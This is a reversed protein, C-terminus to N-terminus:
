KKRILYVLNSLYKTHDLIEIEADEDKLFNLLRDKTIFYLQKSEDQTKNFRFIKTSLFETLKTKKHKEEMEANADRIIILGGEELNEFCMKVTKEQLEEPMYHLVDAIVFVDAKQNLGETIDLYSFQINNLTETAKIAVEIKEKDYDYGILTRKESVLALFHALFGYGCGIDIIKAEKSILQDFLLYNNEIRTKIKAYWELIPGKYIYQSLVYKRYYRTPIVDSKLLEFEARFYEQINKTKEKLGDGWKDEQLQIRPLIKFYASGKHLFFEHRSLADYAGHILIPLIDVNMELALQFVGKHFRKIKGDKTRTGEPFVLVSYGKDMKVKLKEKADKMGDLIPYFDAYRVFFRLVPNNWVKANTVVIIKPYLMLMFVLDLQSQHNAIIFAPRKFDEKTTNIIHKDTNFNLYVVLWSAKQLFHSYILKKLHKKIPLITLISTLVISVLMSIWVLLLSLNGLTFSLLNVAQKRKGRKTKILFNFLIPILTFSLFLVSSIGLVTIVAMSKLAPHKAFIMVGVGALTTLASFFVSLKFSGLEKYGYKNERILGQTIAISYDIGLGFILSSIIINFINFEIGLWGAFGLTWLWSILIPTINIIALEIRGYYLLLVFFVAFVSWWVLKSFNLKLGDLLIESFHQKDFPILQKQNEFASYFAELKESTTQGMKVMTLIHTNDSSESIFDKFILDKLPTFESHSIATFEQDIWMFFQRFAKENFNLMSGKQVIKQKLSDKSHRSWFSNWVEIKEQQKAQSLWLSSVSSYTLIQHQEKLHDLIIQTQENNSLAQDLTKGKSSVYVDKEATSTLNGIYDQDAELQHSLYNLQLLDGQFRVKSVGLYLVVSLLVIISLLIKRSSFQYEMLRYLKSEKNTEKSVKAQQPVIILAFVAVFLISLSAFIALDTFAESQLGILLLFAISSTLSSLLIPASVSKLVSPINNNLRLHAYIHLSYDITIGLLVSGVALALASIQGQIMILISLSLASGLAVPMLINIFVRWTKFFFSIFIVVLLFAIGVTLFIDKKIQKQNADSVLSAGFSHLKVNNPLQQKQFDDIFHAIKANSEQDKANTNIFVFVNKKDSSFIHQRFVIFNGGIDFEQLHKLVLPTWSLPDKIIYKKLVLGTPSLLTKYNSEITKSISSDALSKEIELYDTETLFLPLNQYFFDYLQAMTNDEVKYRINSINPINASDIEAVFKDAQELLIDTSLSDNGEFAVVLKDLVKLNDLLEQTEALAESHPIVKKIDNDLRLNKLNWISFVLISLLLSIYLFRRKKLFRYLGIFLLDM